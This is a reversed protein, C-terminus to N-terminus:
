IEFLMNKMVVYTNELMISGKMVMTKVEKQSRLLIKKLMGIEM